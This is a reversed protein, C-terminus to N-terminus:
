LAPHFKRKRKKRYAETYFEDLYLSPPSMSGAPKRTDQSTYKYLSKALCNVRDAWYHIVSPLEAQSLLTKEMGPWTGTVVVAINQWNCRDRKGGIMMM